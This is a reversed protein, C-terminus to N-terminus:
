PQVIPVYGTSTTVAGEFGGMGGTFDLAVPTGSGDRIITVPISGGEDTYSQPAGGYFHVYTGTGQFGFYLATSTDTLLSAQVLANGSFTNQWTPLAQNSSGNWICAYDFVSYVYTGGTVLVLITGDSQLHASAAVELTGSGFGGSTLPNELCDSDTIPGPYAFQAHITASDSDNGLVAISLAKTATEGWEPDEVQVTVPFSGAKTPTGSITGDPDLTLGDPLQGSTITWVLEDAPRNAGLVVSYATDLDAGPLSETTIRLSDEVIALEFFGSSSGLTHGVDATLMFFGSEEPTGALLGTPSLSLGEPLVSGAALSYVPNSAGDPIQVALQESYPQGTTGDPLTTTEECPLPTPIHTSALLYPSGALAWENEVELDINALPELMEGFWDSPKLSVKLKAPQELKLNPNKCPALTATLGSELALTPAVVGYLLFGVSPKLTFSAELKGELETTLNGTFLAESDFDVSGSSGPEIDIKVVGSMSGTASASATLEVEAKGELKAEISVEPRVVVPVPGVFIVKTGLSYDDLFAFTANCAVTGTASFEAGLEGQLGLGARIHAEEDDWTANFVVDPELSFVPKVKLVPDDDGSDSPCGFRFRGPEAITGVAGGAAAAIGAATASGQARARGHARASGSVMGSVLSTPIAEIFGDTTTPEFDPLELDSPDFSLSIEGEPMADSLTAPETTVVLAGNACAGISLVRRLLGDPTHEGVSAALVDGPTLPTPGDAVYCPLTVSLAGAPDGSAGLVAPPAIVKTTVPAGNGAGSVASTAALSDIAVFGVGTGPLATPTGDRVEVRGALDVLAWGEAGFSAIDSVRPASSGRPGREGEADGLAAVSGNLRAVWAGEGTPTAAIGVAPSTSVPADPIPQAGGLEQVEGDSRLAWVGDGGPAIVIDVLPPFLHSRGGAPGGVPDADGLARVTGDLFGVYAGRGTQTLVIATPFAFLRPFSVRSFHAADGYSTITGGVDLTVYGRGSPSLSLDVVQLTPKRAFAPVDVSRTAGTASVIMVGSPAASAAALVSPGGVLVGLAACLAFVHRVAPHRSM